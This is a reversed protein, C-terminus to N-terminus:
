KSYLIVQTITTYPYLFLVRTILQQQYLTFKTFKVKHYLQPLKFKRISFRLKIAKECGFELPIYNLNINNAYLIYVYHLKQLIAFGFFKLLTVTLSVFAISVLHQASKLYMM